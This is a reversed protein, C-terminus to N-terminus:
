RETVPTPRKTGPLSLQLVELNLLMKCLYHSGVKCCKFFCYCIPTITLNGCVAPWITDM